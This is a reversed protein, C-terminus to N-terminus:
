FEIFVFYIYYNDLINGMPRTILAFLTKRRQAPQKILVCFNGHLILFRDQLPVGSPPM